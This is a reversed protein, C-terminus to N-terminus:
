TVQIDLPPGGSVGQVSMPGWALCSPQSPDNDPCDTVDVVSLLYTHGDQLDVTAPDGSPCHGDADIQPGLSQADLQTNATEDRVWLHVTHEPRCNSVRWVSFGTAQVVTSVTNSWDSTVGEAGVARVRYSWQGLGRNSLQVRTTTPSTVNPQGQPNTEELLYYTAGAAASWAVAYEGLGAPNVIPQAVPTAVSPSPVQVSLLNSWDGCGPNLCGRVRYARMGTRSVVGREVLSLFQTDQLREIWTITDESYQVEYAAAHSDTWYIQFNGQHDTQNLELVPAAPFVAALVSNSWASSRYTNSAQARIQYRGPAGPTWTLQTTNTTGITSWNLGDVSSQLLYESAGSVAPWAVLVNGGQVMPSGLVPPDPQAVVHVTVTTAAGCDSANCASVSYQFTGLPSTGPSWHTDPGSYVAASSDMTVQYRTAFPEAAWQLAFTPYGDNQVQVTPAAPLPPVVGLSAASSWGNNAATQWIHWLTSEHATDSLAFVELRGDGNRATAVPCLGPLTLGLPIWTGWGDAAWGPASHPSGLVIGLRRNQATHCFAGSAQQGFLELRGDANMVVALGSEQRLAGGLSQWTAQWSANPAVQGLRFVSEDHANKVFVQLCKTSDLATVLPVAAGLQWNGGLSAWSSWELAAGRGSLVGPATQWSHWVAGDRGIAFVELRGDANTAMALTPNSPTLMQRLPTWSSFQGRGSEQCTVVAGDLSIAVLHVSGNRDVGATVPATAALTAPIMSWTGVGASSATFHGVGNQGLIFLQCVQAADSVLAMSALPLWNEASPQPVWAGFNAGPQTQEISYLQDDVGQAFVVLSGSASRAATVLGAM